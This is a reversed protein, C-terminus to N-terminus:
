CTNENGETTIKGWGGEDDFYLQSPGRDIVHTVEKIEELTTHSNETKKVLSRLCTEREISNVNCHGNRTVFWLRPVEVDRSQIISSTPNSIGSHNKVSEIYNDIVNTEDTNTLFIMPIKPNYTFEMHEKVLLAAGIAMIGQYHQPSQTESMYTVIAGGMSEGILIDDSSTRCSLGELITMEPQNGQMVEVYKRVNNVDLIADQVILGERRYSTMGIIWGESVLKQYLADNCNLDAKLPIGVPRCGHCHILLKREWKKPVLLTIKAGQVETEIVAAASEM